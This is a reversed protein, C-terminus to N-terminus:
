TSTVGSTIAITSATMSIPSTAYLRETNFAAASDATRVAAANLPSVVIPSARNRASTDLSSREPAMVSIRQYEVSSVRVMRTCLVSGSTPGSADRKSFQPLHEDGGFRARVQVLTHRSRHGGDLSQQLRVSVDLSHVRDEFEIRVADIM